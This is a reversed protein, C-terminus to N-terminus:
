VYSCIKSQEYKIKGYDMIKCVPPSANPSIEVLDLGRETSLKRADATPIVGVLEGNEDILRVTKIRIRHNIRLEQIAQEELSCM